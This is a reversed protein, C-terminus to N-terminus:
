SWMPVWVCVCLYVGLMETPVLSLFAGRAKLHSPSHVFFSSLSSLRVCKHPAESHPAPIANRWYRDELATRLCAHNNIHAGLWSYVSRPSCIVSFRRMIDSTPPGAEWCTHTRRFHPFLKLLLCWGELCEKFEVVKLSWCCGRGDFM